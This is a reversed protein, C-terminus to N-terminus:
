LAGIQHFCIKGNVNTNLPIELLSLHSSEWMARLSDFSFEQSLVFNYQQWSKAMTDPSLLKLVMASKFINLIQFHEIEKELQKIIIKWM